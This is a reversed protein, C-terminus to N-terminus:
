LAREGIRKNLKGAHPSQRLHKPSPMAQTLPLVWTKWARRHPKSLFRRVKQPCNPFTTFFWFHFHHKRTSFRQTMCRKQMIFSFDPFLLVL